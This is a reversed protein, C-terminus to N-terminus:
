PYGSSKRVLLCVPMEKGSGELLEVAREFVLELGRDWPGEAQFMRHTRLRM